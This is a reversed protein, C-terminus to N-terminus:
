KGGVELSGGETPSVDVPLMLTKGGPYVIKVQAPGAVVGFLADSPQQGGRGDAGSVWQTQTRKWADTVEIRAGLPTPHGPAFRLALPAAKPQPKRANLLLRSATKEAYLFLDPMRDGDADFVAMYSVNPTKRADLLNTGSADKFRAGGENLYLRVDGTLAVLLDNDGDLDVDAIAAAMIPGNLKALDGADKLAEKFQGKGDNLFLLPRGKQPVFLDVWGDNDLDGAALGHALGDQANFRIKADFVVFRKGGENRMVLGSRYHYIFDTFTDNDLDLTLLFDGGAGRGPGRSGLGAADSVDQPRRPDNRLLFLGEDSAMLYDPRGDANFDLWAGSLPKRYAPRGRPAVEVFRGKQGPLGLYTRLGEASLFTLDPEGDGNIECVQATLGAFAELGRPRTVDEFGRPSNFFVRVPDGSLILDPLGDRDLDAVAAGTAAKAPARCLAYGLEDKNSADRFTTGQDIPGRAPVAISSTVDGEKGNKGDGAGKQPTVAGSPDGSQLTYAAFAGVGVVLAAALALATSRGGRGVAQTTALRTRVARAEHSTGGGPDRIPQKGTTPRDENLKAGTTGGPRAHGGSALREGALGRRPVPKEGSRKRGGPKGKSLIARAPAEGRQLAELDSILEQPDQYRDEPAKQMLRQIVGSVEASLDPELEHPVPVPEAVHQTMIVAGTPGAYPPRGVVLHFFTAGLSYLDSRIDVGEEGRAQEPSIYNPTGVAQGAQTLGADESGHQLKALGLDCLKATGDSGILINDPKIDRHVMKHKWAHDLARATQLILDLAEDEEIKGGCQKIRRLASPGDVYEMAFYYRGGSEGVSIGQILNPHNLQAVARAERFFREVFDGNQALDRPLIKVAVQRQLSVQNALWVSGMGGKGIERLLEYDDLRQNLQVAGSSRRNPNSTSM